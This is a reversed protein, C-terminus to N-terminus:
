IRFVVGLMSGVGTWDGILGINFKLSVGLKESFWYRGAIFPNLSLGSSGHVGNGGVIAFGLGAGAFLDLKEVKLMTFHYAADVSPIIVHFGSGFWLMVTGGVGINETLAYEFNVGFPIEGSYLGIQPTLYKEGKNFELRAYKKMIKKPAASLALSACLLIAVLIVFIKNIKM